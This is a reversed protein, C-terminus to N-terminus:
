FRPRLRRRARQYLQEITGESLGSEEALDAFTTRIDQASCDELVIQQTFGPLRRVARHFARQREMFDETFNEV